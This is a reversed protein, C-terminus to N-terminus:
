EMVRYQRRLWRSRVGRGVAVPDADDPMARAAVQVAVESPQPLELEACTDPDIGAHRLQQRYRANRQADELDMQASALQLFEAKTHGAQRRAEALPIGRERALQWAAADEAREQAVLWEARYARQAREAAAADEADAQAVRAALGPSMLERVTGDAAWGARVAIGETV